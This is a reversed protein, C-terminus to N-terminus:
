VNKVTKGGLIKFSAKKSPKMAYKRPKLPLTIDRKNTSGKPLQKRNQEMSSPLSSIKKHKKDCKQTKLPPPPTIVGINTSRTKGM